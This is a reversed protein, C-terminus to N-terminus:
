RKYTREALASIIEGQLTDLNDKAVMRTEYDKFGAETRPSATYHFDWGIVTLNANFQKSMTRLTVISDDESAAFSALEALAGGFDTSLSRYHKATVM